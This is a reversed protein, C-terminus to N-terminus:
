AIAEISTKPLDPHEGPNIIIPNTFKMYLMM